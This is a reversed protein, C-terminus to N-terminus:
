EGSGPWASSLREGIFMQPGQMMPEFSRVKQPHLLDRSVPGLSVPAPKFGKCGAHGPVVVSQGQRHGPALDSSRKLWSRPATIDM